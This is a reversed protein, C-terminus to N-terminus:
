GKREKKRHVLGEGEGADEERPVREATTRVTEKVDKMRGM